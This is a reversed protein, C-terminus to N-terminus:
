RAQATRDPTRYSQRLRTSQEMVQQEVANITAISEWSLKPGRADWPEALHREAARRFSENDATRAVTQMIRRWEDDDTGSAKAAIATWYDDIHPSSPRRRLLLRVGHRRGGFALIFLHCPDLEQASLHMKSRSFTQVMEDVRGLEGRACIAVAHLQSPLEGDTMKLHDLFPEWDDQLSAVYSELFTQQRLTARLALARLAAVKEEISGNAMAARAAANFRLNGTPCLLCALRAFFAAAKHDDRFIQRQEAMLLMGPALLLAFTGVVVLGSWQPLWQLAAAGAALVIINIAIFSALGEWRNTRRLLALAQLAMAVVLFPAVMSMAMIAFVASASLDAQSHMRMAEDRFHRLRKHSPGGCLEAFRGDIIM